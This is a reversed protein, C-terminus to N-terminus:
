KTYTRCSWRIGRSCALRPPPLTSPPDACRPTRARCICSLYLIPARSGLPWLALPFALGHAQQTKQEEVDRETAAAGDQSQEQDLVPTRYPEVEKARLVGDAQRPHQHGGHGDAGEDRHDEQQGAAQGGRQAGPAQLAIQPSTLLIQPPQLLPALTQEDLMLAQQLRM